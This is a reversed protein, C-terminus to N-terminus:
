KGVYYLGRGGKRTVPKVKSAPVYRAGDLDYNRNAYGRAKGKTTFVKRDTKLYSARSNPGATGHRHLILYGKVM